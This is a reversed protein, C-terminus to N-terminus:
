GWQASCINSKNVNETHGMEILM